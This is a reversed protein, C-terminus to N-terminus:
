MMRSDFKYFDADPKFTKCDAIATCAIPQAQRQAPLGYITM